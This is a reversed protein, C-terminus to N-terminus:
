EDGANQWVEFAEDREAAKVPFGVRTTLVNADPRGDGTLYKVRLEPDADVEAMMTAIAKGIIEIRTPETEDKAPVLMDRMGEPMCGAGLAARYFQKPVDTGEPHVSFTHGGATTALLVPKDGPAYLKVMNEKGTQPAM